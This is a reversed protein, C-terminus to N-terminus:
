SGDLLISAVLNKLLVIPKIIGNAERRGDRRKAKLRPEISKAQNSVM